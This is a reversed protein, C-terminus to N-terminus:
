WTCLWTKTVQKRHLLLQTLLYKYMTMYWWGANNLAIWPNSQSSSSYDIKKRPTGSKSYSGQRSWHNQENGLSNVVERSSVHPHAPHFRYPCRQCCHSCSIVNKLGLFLWKYEYKTDRNCQPRNLSSNASLHTDRGRKGHMEEQM